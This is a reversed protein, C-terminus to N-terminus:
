PVLAHWYRAIIGLVLLGLILAVARQEDATLEFWARGVGRLAARLGPPPPATADPPDSPDSQNM